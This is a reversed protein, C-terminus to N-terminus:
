DTIFHAGGVDNATIDVASVNGYDYASVGQNDGDYTTTITTHLVRPDSQFGNTDTVGDIQYDDEQTARPDCVVVPNNQDLLSILMADGPNGNAPGVGGGYATGTHPVGVPPCNTQPNFQKIHLLQGTPSFDNEVKLHGAMGPDYWYPITHSPRKVPWGLLWAGGPRPPSTSSRTRAM